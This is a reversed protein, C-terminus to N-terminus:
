SAIDRRESSQTLRYMSVCPCVVVILADHEVRYPRTNRHLQLYQFNLVSHRGDSMKNPVIVVAVDDRHLASSRFNFPRTSGASEPALHFCKTVIIVATTPSKRIRV